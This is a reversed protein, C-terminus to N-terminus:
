KINGQANEKVQEKISEQNNEKVGMKINEQAHEQGNEKVDGKLSILEKAVTEIQEKTLGSGSPLYLGKKYLEDSVPYEGNCDPFREDDGNLFLPQRHFPYFFSRTGIGKESLKKMVEEKSLGFGDEILVCYMWCVMDAWKVKKQLTIGDINKLLKNYMRMIRKRSKLIKEIKEMQAYGIAAHLNSMRYNSGLVSHHFRPETFGLNRILRAREAYEKNNTLVMGGEGATVIKNSYFSFCSIDGFSGTMKGNYKAGHSEACDEVLFLNHKKAIESVPEMEVPHGYLHVVLIAKTKPTIKEEIKAPDIGFTKKDVDVLVPKAGAFIVGNATAINSLNPIIVEDGKGIKLTEMAIHIATTGNSCSVGHEMGIFKAFSEEFLQNFRGSSIWKTKVGELVYKKENGFFKPESVLIM